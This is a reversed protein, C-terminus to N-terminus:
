MLGVVVVGLADAWSVARCAVVKGWAEEELTWSVALFVGHCIWGGGACVEDALCSVRGCAGDFVVRAFVAPSRTVLGAGADKM